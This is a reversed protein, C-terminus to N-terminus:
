DISSTEVYKVRDKSATPISVEIENIDATM